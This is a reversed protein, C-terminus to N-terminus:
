GTIISIFTETQSIEYGGDRKNIDDAPINDWWFMSFPQFSKGLTPDSKRKM